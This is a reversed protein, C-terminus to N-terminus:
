GNQIHLMPNQLLILDKSHLCLLLFFFGDCSCCCFIDHFNYHLIYVCVCRWWLNCTSPPFMFTNTLRGWKQSQSHQCYTCSIFLKWYNSRSNISSNMKVYFEITETGNWTKWYMEVPLLNWTTRYIPGLSGLWYQWNHKQRLGICM